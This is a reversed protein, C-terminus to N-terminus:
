RERTSASTLEFPMDVEYQGYTLSSRMAPFARRLLRMARYNDGLVTATFGTLARRMAEARLRAVVARGLGRSQWADALLIGIEARSGQTDRDFRAVGVLKGAVEAVLAYSTCGDAVGIRAVREAWIENRPVGACFYLYRTADSLTYFMERLRPVDDGADRLAVVAGDPLRVAATELLRDRPSTVPARALTLM